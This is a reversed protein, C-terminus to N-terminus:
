TDSEDREPPLEESAARYLRVPDVHRYRETRLRLAACVDIIDAAPRGQGRMQAVREEIAQGTGTPHYLFTRGFRVDREFGILRVEAVDGSEVGYLARQEAVEFVAGRCLDRVRVRGPRLPGIAVLARQSRLWARLASARRPDGEMALARLGAQGVGDSGEWEFAFWELFAQTWPEWLEEDQRVRGRREEYRARASALEGAHDPDDFGHFLDDAVRYLFPAAADGSDGSDGSDTEGPDSGPDSEGGGSGPDGADPGSDGTGEGEGPEDPELGEDARSGGM